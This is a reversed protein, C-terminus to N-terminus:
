QNILQTLYGDIELYAGSQIEINLVFSNQKNVPLTYTEGTLLLYPVDNSGGGPTVASWRLGTPQTSDAVLVRGDVGVPLRTNNTGDYTLLDGKTTLPSLNNFTTIPTTFTIEGGVAINDVYLTSVTPDYLFNGSGAFVGGANYQISLNPGGPLNGTTNIPVQYSGTVLGKNNVTFVPISTPSGYTGPTPNVTALTLTTSNQPKTVDGTYAPDQLEWNPGNSIYTAGTDTEIFISSPQPPTLPRDNTTGQYLYQQGVLNPDANIVFSQGPPPLASVFNQLWFSWIQNVKGDPGVFDHHLPIQGPYYSM